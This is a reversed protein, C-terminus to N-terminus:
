HMTQGSPRERFLKGLAETAASTDRYETRIIGAIGGRSTYTGLVIMFRPKCSEALDDLIKNVMTEMFTKHNRYALLYLKLSKTEICKENPVYSVRLHCFDPQGTKPCLSTVEKTEFEIVYERAPYNNTFTELMSSNPEDYKLEVTRGLKNLKSPDDQM